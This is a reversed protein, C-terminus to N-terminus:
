ATFLRPRLWYSAFSTRARWCPQTATHRNVYYRYAPNWRNLRFTALRHEPTARASLESPGLLRMSAGQIWHFLAPKDFFPQQNYHPVLWDGTEIMERSTEAYHAEDPDWLTPAGLCAFLTIFLLVAAWLYPGPGFKPLV